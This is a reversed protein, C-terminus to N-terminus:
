VFLPKNGRLGSPQGPSGQARQLGAGLGAGGLLLGPSTPQSWTTILTRPTGVGRTVAEHVAAAPSGSVRGPRCGGRLRPGARGSDGAGAESRPERVGLGRGRQAQSRPAGQSRVGVRPRLPWTPHLATSLGQPLGTSEGRKVTEAAGGTSSKSSLLCSRERTPKM